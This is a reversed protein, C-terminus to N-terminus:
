RRGESTGRPRVYHAGGPVAPHEARPLRAVRSRAGEDRRGRGFGSSGSGLGANCGLSLVEGLGDSAFLLGAVNGREAAMEEVARLAGGRSPDGGVYPWDHPNAPQPTPIRDLVEQTTALNGASEIVFLRRPGPAIVHQKRYTGVNDVGANTRTDSLFVLGDKLRMALCYTM